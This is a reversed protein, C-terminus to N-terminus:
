GQMCKTVIAFHYRMWSVGLCGPNSERGLGDIIFMEFIFSVVVDLDIIVTINSRQFFYQIQTVDVSTNNVIDSLSNSFILKSNFQNQNWIVLM